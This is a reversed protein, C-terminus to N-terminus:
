IRDFRTPPERTVPVLRSERDIAKDLEEFVRADEQAQIEWTAINFLTPQPPPPPPPRHLIRRWCEEFEDLNLYAAWAQQNEELPTPYPM